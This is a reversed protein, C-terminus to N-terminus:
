VFCTPTATEWSMWVKGCETGNVRLRGAVPGVGPVGTTISSNQKLLEMSVRRQMPGLVVSQADRSIRAVLCMPLTVAGCVLM